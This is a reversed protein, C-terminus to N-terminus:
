GIDTTELFLVGSRKLSKTDPNLYYFMMTFM